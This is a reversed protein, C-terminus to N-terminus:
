ICVHVSKCTSMYMCLTEQAPWVHMYIYMYAYVKAHTWQLGHFCVYYMKSLFTGESEDAKM